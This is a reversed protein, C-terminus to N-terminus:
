NTELDENGVLVKYKQLTQSIHLVFIELLNLAHLRVCFEM